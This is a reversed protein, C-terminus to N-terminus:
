SIEEDNEADASPESSDGGVEEDGGPLAVPGDLRDNDDKVTGEVDLTLAEKELFQKLKAPPVNVGQVLDLAADHAMRKLEELSIESPDVGGTLSFQEQQDVKGDRPLSGVQQLLKIQYDRLKAALHLYGGRAQSGEDADSYETLALQELNQFHALADGVVQNKQVDSAMRRNKARIAQVDKNITVRSVSLTKAIVTQPIGRALLDAVARRRQEIEFRTAM